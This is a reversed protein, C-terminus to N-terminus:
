SEGEDSAEPHWSEVAEPTAELRGIVEGNSDVVLLVPLRIVRYHKLMAGHRDHLWTVGLADLVRRASDHPEQVDVVVFDLEREGCARRLADFNSATERSEPVWTSWVLVAVPARESVWEPWDVPNGVADVLQPSPDAQAIVPTQWCLSLAAALGLYSLPRRM